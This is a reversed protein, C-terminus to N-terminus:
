GMHLHTLFIGELQFRQDLGFYNQLLAYQARFDPSCDILWVQKTTRDIVALSVAYQATKKGLHVSRCNPCQCRIQPMGGDQATGLLLLEVPSSQDHDIQAGEMMMMVIMSMSISVLTRSTPLIKTARGM